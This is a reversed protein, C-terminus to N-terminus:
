EAESGDTLQNQSYDNEHNYSAEDLYSEPIEKKVKAGLSKMQETRRVINGKGEVLQGHSKEFSDTAQKLRSGLTEFSKLFLAIQDHM